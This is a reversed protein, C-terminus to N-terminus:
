IRNVGVLLTSRALLALKVGNPVRLRRAMLEEVPTEGIQKFLKMFYSYASHVGLRAGDPLRRIGELAFAFEREVEREMARKAEENVDEPSLVGPLYVRGRETVDAKLDRLFNVKQFASGLARARPALERYRREDGEVFVRLCMLGVVEASGYVYEEFSAKDHVRKTLDARMSALFARTLEPEFGYREAVDRYAEIAPNSSVGLRFARDTEEAFGEFVRARDHDRMEDVIEDAVRVFGYVGFIPARFRKALARVGFTFSTSYRRTILEGIEYATERYLRM